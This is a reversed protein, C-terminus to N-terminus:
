FGLGLSAAPISGANCASGFGPSQLCELTATASHGAAEEHRFLLVADQAVFLVFFGSSLGLRSAVRSCKPRPAIRESLLSPVGPGRPRARVPPADEGDNGNSADESGIRSHLACVAAEHVQRM